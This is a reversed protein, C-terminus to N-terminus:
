SLSMAYPSRTLGLAYCILSLCPRGTATRACMSVSLNLGTQSFSARGSNSRCGILKACACSANSSVYHMLSPIITSNTDDDIALGNSTALDKWISGLDHMFAIFTAPGNVPGFPMVNYTYKIADPGQFALKERSSSDVLLQHYGMPADVLWYFKATGCATMVASVCRPIPYAIIRTVQNLPIYNVCFRWVFDDIDYVHEQHPKPALLCKFLWQGDHIQSIHGVKELAAICSRMKPIERPGYNIKKVAIPRSTGTDIVCEYHKVPVFYTSEDFVAWYQKILDTVSSRTPEDLHSLNLNKRLYEGHLAEDYQVNFAPDISDLPPAPHKLKRLIAGGDISSLLRDYDDSIDPFGRDDIFVNRPKGKRIPKPTVQIPIRATAGHADSSLGSTFALLPESSFSPLSYTLRSDSTLM